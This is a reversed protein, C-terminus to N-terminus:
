SKLMEKLEYVLRLAQMPTLEDPLVEKLAAEVVSPKQTAKPAPTPIARFLPLDDIM